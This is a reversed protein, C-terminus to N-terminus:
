SDNWRDNTMDKWAAQHPDFYSALYREHHKTYQSPDIASAEVEPSWTNVTHLAEDSTVGPLVPTDTRIEPATVENENAIQYDYYKGSEPAPTSHCPRLV